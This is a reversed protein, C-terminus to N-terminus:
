NAEDVDSIESSQQEASRTSKNTAHYGVERLQLCEARVPIRKPCSESPHEKDQAPVLQTALRLAFSRGEAGTRTREGALRGL